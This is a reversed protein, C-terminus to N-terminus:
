KVIFNIIKNPVFIEKLIKKEAFYKLIDDKQNIINILESKDIDKECEILGRKKGNIQVVIKINKNNLYKNDVEPWNNTNQIELNEM